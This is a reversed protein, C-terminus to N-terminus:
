EKATIEIDISDRLRKVFTAFEIQGSTRELYERGSAEVKADPDAVGGDKIATVRFVLHTGDELTADGPADQGEVPRGAEFLAQVLAPPLKQDERKVGTAKLPPLGQSKVAEGFVQGGKMMDLLARARRDADARADQEKLRLVIMPKVETLPKDTAPRHDNLRLVLAKENGLEVPESNKGALVEESFAVKRVADEAVIGEGGERTFLATHQIKLGLTDVASQLSDPNEFTIEALKQGREYFQTEALNKQATKKLEEKVADFPKFQAPVVETVQILHYGFSTKVPASTEGLKLAQAAETFSAEQAEPNLLGLDGGVKGSVPDKSLTNALTKFDEGQLIRQRIAEAQQRAAQDAPEDVGDLTILIHSIKRREPTGFNTKQEEYLKKLDELSVELGQAMAELNLLVYDVSVQEPNRFEGIHADYFTSVDDDSFVKDSKGVSIKVYEVDRTQNKLRMLTELEGKTVFASAMVGQQLQENRLGQKIQAAFQAPTMNQAALIIRYKEKDFQGQTQFYPLTQILSRAEIDAVTLQREDASQTIVEERILRELAEHRLAKEDVDELGVLKNLSQEYARTVDRDFIDRDGVVAAPKEKGTDIYNQIGWLMFPVGVVILMVWAVIGQARERIAQLM